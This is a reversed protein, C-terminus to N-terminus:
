PTKMLLLTGNTGNNLNYHGVGLFKGAALKFHLVGSYGSASSINADASCQDENVTLSSVTFEINSSNNDIDICNTFTKNGQTSITGVGNVLSANAIGSSPIFEGNKCEKLNGNEHLQVFWNGKLDSTIGSFDSSLAFFSCSSPTVSPGQPGQPGTDGKPGQIGQLGQIGQIGQAGQEGQPGQPGQPGQDGQPGQLGTDGKPGPANGGFVQWYTPDTGPTHNVNKKTLSLYPQNDYIVLNGPAYKTAANWDGMYKNVAIPKAEATQTTLAASILLAAINPASALLRGAPNLQAEM